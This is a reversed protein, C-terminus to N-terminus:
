PRAGGSQTLKGTRGGWPSGGSNFYVDHPPLPDVATVHCWHMGAAKAPGEFGKNGSNGGCITKMFGNEWVRLGWDDVGNTYFRNRWPDYVISGPSDHFGASKEPGDKYGGSPGVAVCVEGAKLDVKRICHNWRDAVYICGDGGFCLGGGMILQFKASELPEIAGGAAPGGSGGKPNLTEVKGDPSIRRLFNNDIVWANGAEDAAVNSHLYRFVAERGTGDAPAGKWEPKSPDGAVTEVSWRGDKQSLRRVCRNTRDGIFLGGKGDPCASLQLGLLAQAAPGDQYGPLGPTGALYRVTSRDKSVSLIAGGSVAFGEGTPFFCLALGGSVEKVPGQLSGGANAAGIFLETRWSDIDEVYQVTAQGARATQGPLLAALLVTAFCSLLRVRKGM